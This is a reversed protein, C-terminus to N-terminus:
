WHEHWHRAYFYLDNQYKKMAEQRRQHSLYDSFLYDLSETVEMDLNYIFCFKTCATAALEQHVLNLAQIFTNKDQSLSCKTQIFNKQNSILYSLTESDQYGIIYFFEFQCGYESVLKQELQIAKKFDQPTQVLIAYLKLHFAKDMVNRWTNLYGQYMEINEVFSVLEEESAHEEFFYRQIQPFFTNSREWIKIIGSFHVLAHFPLYRDEDQENFFYAKLVQEDNSYLHRDAYVRQYLAPDPRVVFLEGGFGDSKGESNKRGSSYFCTSENEGLENFIDDINRKILMDADIFCIKDYETFNFIQFKNITDAFLPQFGSTDFKDIKIPIYKINAQALQNQIDISDEPVLAIYPFKSKYHTMLVNCNKVCPVYKLETVLTMFCNNEM